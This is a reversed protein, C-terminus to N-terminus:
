DQNRPGGPGGEPMAVLKDHMMKCTAEVTDGEPSTISVSDGESQGECVEFAEPPPQRREGKEALAQATIFTFALSTLTIFIKKM